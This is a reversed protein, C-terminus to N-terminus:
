SNTVITGDPRMEKIPEAFGGGSLRTRIPKDVAAALVLVSPQQQLLRTVSSIKTRVDTTPIAVLWHLQLGAEPLGAIFRRRVIGSRHYLTRCIQLADISQKALNTLVQGPPMEVFLDYVL